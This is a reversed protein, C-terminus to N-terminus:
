VVLQFTTPKIGLLTKSIKISKIRGAMSHGHPQSQRHCFHTGPINGPTYLRGNCLASFKVVKMHQNDSFGTLWFRRSGM